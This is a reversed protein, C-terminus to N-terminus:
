SRAPSAPRARVEGGDGRGAVRHAVPRSVLRHDGALDGDGGVPRDVDVAHQEPELRREPRAVAIATSPNM